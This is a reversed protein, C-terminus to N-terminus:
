GLGNSKILAVVIRSNFRKREKGKAQEARESVDVQRKPQGAKPMPQSIARGEGTLDKRVLGFLWGIRAKSRFKDTKEVSFAPDIPVSLVM